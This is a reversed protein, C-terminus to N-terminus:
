EFHYCTYFFETGEAIGCLASLMSGDSHWHLAVEESVLGAEKAYKKLTYWTPTAGKWGYRMEEYQSPIFMESGCFHSVMAKAEEIKKMMTTTM